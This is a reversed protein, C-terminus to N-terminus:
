EDQPGLGLEVKYANVFFDHLPKLNDELCNRPEVDGKYCIDTLLTGKLAKIAKAEPGMTGSLKKKGNADKM